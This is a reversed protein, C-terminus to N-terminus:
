RVLNVHGVITHPKEKKDYYVMKWSYVGDPCVQNNLFTGDWYNAYDTMTHILEGWRNYLDLQFSKINVYVVSFVPNFEDQDPTFTNPVYIIPEYKIETGGIAECGNEDIFLVTYLFDADPNAETTACAVCSLYDPPSWYFTGTLPSSATLLVPEGIFGLYNSQVNVTPRPFVNVVVFATDKCGDTDTGIVQYTTNVVPSSLITNGTSESLTSVPSWEYTIGGTATLIANGDPCIITDGFANVDPYLVDAFISDPVLGCSNIFDCYFYMDSTPNITVTPGILPSIFPNSTWQYTDGGSVTITESTYICVKITDDIVPLPPNTFVTVLVSDVYDCGAVTTGTVIYNTTQTATCIPNASTPNSL